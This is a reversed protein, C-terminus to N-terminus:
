LQIAESELEIEGGISSVRWFVKFEKPAGYSSTFSTIDVNEQGKKIAMLSWILENREM